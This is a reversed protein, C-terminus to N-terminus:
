LTLIYRIFLCKFVSSFFQTFINALQLLITCTAVLVKLTVAFIWCCSVFIWVLFLLLFLQYSSLFFLLEIDSFMLCTCKSPTGEKGNSLSNGFGYIIALTLFFKHSPFRAYWQYSCFNTYRKGSATYLLRPFGMVIYVDLVVVTNCLSWRYQKAWWLVVWLLTLYICSYILSYMFLLFCPFTGDISLSSFKIHM